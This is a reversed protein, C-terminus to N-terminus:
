GHLIYRESANNFSYAGGGSRGNGRRWVIIHQGGRARPMIAVRRQSMM